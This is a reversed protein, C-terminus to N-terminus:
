VLTALFAYMGDKGQAVSSLMRVGSFFDFACGATSKSVPEGSAKDPWPVVPSRASKTKNNTSSGMPTTLPALPAM